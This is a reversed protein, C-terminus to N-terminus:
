RSARRRRLEKPDATLPRYLEVRDGDRVPADRAVPRSWIGVSLAATDLGFETGIASAEIAHAVTAGQHLEVRRLFQRAPEAYAVEVHIPRPGSEPM